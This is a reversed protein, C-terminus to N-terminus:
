KKGLGFLREANQTTAAAIEETAVGRLTAICECVKVLLAPENRAGQHGYLPQDPSDTELLLFELPM